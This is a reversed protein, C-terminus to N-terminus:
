KQHDRALVMGFLGNVFIYSPNTNPDNQHLVQRSIRVKGDQIADQDASTEDLADLEDCVEIYSVQKGEKINYNIVLKDDYLYVSNIFVDIIKKRFVEDMPDGNCFLKLWAMIQDKTYHAASLLKLKALDIEMDAKKTELQEIKEFLRQRLKPSPAQISADVTQDIIRETKDILAQLKKMEDAGFEQDYREVMRKAIYEIRDPLLIYECTQEVVYWELFDKKETKKNCTHFKKRKACAYYYHVIGTKSTGSHGVLNAGCHGCFGKGQLLYEQRAKASAPAHKRKKLMAQVKNFTEEDVIAECGGTVAQGNFVYEGIYKRNHFANQLSSLSLPRGYFGKVGKQNLVDFIKKKPVGLAYQDFMWRVIPANQEDAVLKRDVVKFGFPIIGGTYTGNIASQHLGRKVHKSLNASYYEALSELMGELMIGEPDDSINETASVVRVGYKKLIHKYNASDFRNRAFRDLKWVIVKQFQKKAADKIMRQFDPREDTKGSIARDIYEGVVALGERKAFAYCDRLQGEISQETQSHSSYRAYIVANITKDM